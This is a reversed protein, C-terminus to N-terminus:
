NASAAFVPTRFKMRYASPTMSTIRKFVKRFFAPNEYGVDAAIDDVARSTNELQRKASEIRLHQLYDMPTLGTANKFRRKFSREAIGSQQGMQELANVDRWHERLWVQAQAILADQHNTDEVFRAYPLQGEPHWSLLFFKAVRGAAEPGRLRYILHLVLDNWSSSAGSLIFRNDPGTILLTKELCLNAAPFSRRMTNGFAWHCTIPVQNFLGTEMLLFIGSCASCLIAGRAYQERLWAILEPYRGTVWKDNPVVLAPVIVIHSTEIDQIHHHASLPIGSATNILERSAAVLQVEFPEHKPLLQAFNNFVDYISLLTSAAAEPILVLSVHTM